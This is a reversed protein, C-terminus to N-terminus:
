KPNTEKKEYNENRHQIERRYQLSEWKKSQNRVKIHKNSDEKLDNIM